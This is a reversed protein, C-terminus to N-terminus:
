IKISSHNECDGEDDAMPFNNGDFECVFHDGSAACFDCTKCKPYTGYGCFPCSRPIKDVKYLRGCGDCYITIKDGM